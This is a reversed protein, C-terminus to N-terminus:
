KSKKNKGRYTTTLAHCNPCLMTLNDLSNDQPNGNKHELELPIPQDKWHTLGCSYCKHEFIGTRLLRLKLKYTQIPRKNNLYDEIPLQPGRVVGKNWPQGTWHSTDLALEKIRRKLAAYNGGAEKLGLMSLAQRHSHARRIADIFQKDTYKRTRAM